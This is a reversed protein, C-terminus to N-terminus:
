PQNNHIETHSQMRYSAVVCNQLILLRPLNVTLTSGVALESLIRRPIQPLISSGSRSFSGYAVFFTAGHWANDYWTRLALFLPFTWMLLLSLHCQHFSRYVPERDAPIYTVENLGEARSTEANHKNERLDYFTLVAHDTFAIM